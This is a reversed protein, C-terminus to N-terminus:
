RSLFSMAGPSGQRSRRVPRISAASATTKRSEGSETAESMQAQLDALGLPHGLANRGATARRTSAAL